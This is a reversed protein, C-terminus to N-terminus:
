RGGGVGAEGVVGCGVAEVDVEEGPWVLEGVDAAQGALDFVGLEEVVARFDAQFHVVPVGMEDGGVGLGLGEDEGM